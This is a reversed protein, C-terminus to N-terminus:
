DEIVQDRKHRLLGRAFRKTNEGQPVSRDTGWVTGPFDLRRQIQWIAEHEAPSHIEAPDGVAVWGIPIVSERVVRTNLHVVGNIRVEVGSELRAGNFVSSGTAIFCDDEIQCGIVHTHPGVLVRNGISLPNKPTGRLVANEMIVCDSGIEIAGGEDTIVAGFLVTTESGIRVDGRVVANPAVYASDAIQPRKGDFEILMQLDEV